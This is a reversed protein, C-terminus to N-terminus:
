QVRGTVLYGACALGIALGGGGLVAVFPLSIIPDILFHAAVGAAVLLLGALVGLWALARLVGHPRPAPVPPDYADDRPSRFRQWASVLFLAAAAAYLLVLAWYLGPTDARTIQARLFAHSSPSEAVGTLLAQVALGALAVGLLLVFWRPLRNVLAM